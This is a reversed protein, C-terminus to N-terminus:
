ICFVLVRSVKGATYTHAHEEIFRKWKEPLGITEYAPHTVLHKLKIEVVSSAPSATLHLWGDCDFRAM